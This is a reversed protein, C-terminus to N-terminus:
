FYSQKLDDITRLLNDRRQAAAKAYFSYAFHAALAKGLFMGVQPGRRVSCGCRRNIGGVAIVGPFAQNPRPAAKFRSAVYNADLHTVRASMAVDGSISCYGEMETEFHHM